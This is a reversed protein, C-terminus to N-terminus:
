GPWGQNPGPGVGGGVAPRGWGHGGCGQGDWDTAGRGGDSSACRHGPGVPAAWGSSRPTNVAAATTPAEASVTTRGPSPQSTAANAAVAASAVAPTTRDPVDDEAVSGVPRVADM